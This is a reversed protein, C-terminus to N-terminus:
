VSILGKLRQFDDKRIRLNFRAKGESSYDCSLVQAKRYIFSITQADQSPISIKVEVFDELIKAEIKAQLQKLNLGTRASIFM